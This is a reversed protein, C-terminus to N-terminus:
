STRPTPNFGIREHVNEVSTKAVPVNTGSASGESIGTISADLTNIPNGGKAAARKADAERKVLFDFFIPLKRFYLERVM